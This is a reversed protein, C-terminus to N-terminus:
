KPKIKKHRCDFFLISLSLRPSIQKEAKGGFAHINHVADPLDEPKAAASPRGTTTLLPMQILLNITL